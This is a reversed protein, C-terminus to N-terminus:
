KAGEKRAAEASKEIVDFSIRARVLDASQRLSEAWASDAAWAARAAAYAAEAAWAAGSAARASRAAAEAAWAAASASEAAAANAATNLEEITAQGVCWRRTMALCEAVRPNTTYKLAPEACDCAAAVLLKLDINLRGAFWLMWEGRECEHWATKLDRGRCFDVAERCAHLKALLKQLDNANMNNEKKSERPRRRTIKQRDRNL